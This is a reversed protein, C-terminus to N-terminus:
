VAGGGGLARDVKRDARDVQDEGRLEAVGHPRRVAAVRAARHRVAPPRRREGDHLQEHALRGAEARERGGREEDAGRREEPRGDGDGQGEGARALLRAVRRRRARGRRAGEGREVALEAAEKGTSACFTVSALRGVLLGVLLGVLWGVLWGVAREDGVVGWFWIGASPM